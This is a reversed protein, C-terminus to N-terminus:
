LSFTKQNEYRRLNDLSTVLWLPTVQNSWWSFNFELNHVMHVFAVPENSYAYCHTDFQSNRIVSHGTRLKHIQLIKQVCKGSPFPQPGTNDILCM